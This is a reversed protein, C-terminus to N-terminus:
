EVYLTPVVPSLFSDKKKIVEGKQIFYNVFENPSNESEDDYIQIIGYSNKAIEGIMQVLELLKEVIPTYRNQFLTISLCPTNNYIYLNIVKPELNLIEIKDNVKKLIDERETISLKSIIVWGHLQFM